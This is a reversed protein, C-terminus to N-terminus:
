RIDRLMHTFAEVIEPDFQIGAQEELYGIAEAPTMNITRYPRRTTLADYVDIVSFIRAALPIEKGALGYPYGNGDWREQHFAIVQLADNLAPIEQIIDAGIRPHQRMIEREEETLAEDKLLINDSIGIKGIDHLLSGRTLAKLENQPLGIEQGLIVALNAVRESHGETEKDRADLARMLAQLTQDYTVELNSYAQILKKAQSRTEELLILRELAITSQNVMALIEDKAQSRELNDKALNLWLTGYCRRQTIIPIVIHGTSEAEDLHIAQRSAMAQQILIHPHSVPQEQVPYISEAEKEGESSFLVLGCARPQTLQYATYTIIDAAQGLTEVQSIQNNLENFLQTTFLSHRLKENVLCSGLNQSAHASLLDALFVDENTFASAGVKGFALLLFRANGDIIIPSVLLSCLEPADFQLCASRPDLRSDRLCFTYPSKIAEDLFTSAGNQLSNCLIPADGAWRLLWEKRQLAAVVTFSADLTRRAISSIIEMLGTTEQIMSLNGVSQVFEVMVYERYDYEWVEALRAAAAQVVRDDSPIFANQSIDGLLIMGQLLNNHIIPAVLISPFKQYRRSDRKESSAEPTYPRERTDFVQIGWQSITDPELAEPALGAAAGAAFMLRAPEQQSPIYYIGIFSCSYLRCLLQAMKQASRELNPANEPENGFQNIELLKQNVQREEALQNEIANLKRQLAHIGRSAYLDRSTQLYYQAGHDTGPQHLKWVYKKSGPIEPVPNSDPNKKM